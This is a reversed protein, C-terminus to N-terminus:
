PAAITRSTWHSGQRHTKCLVPGQFLSLSHTHSYEGNAIVPIRLANAVTGVLACQEATVPERPRQQTLRAHVGLAAAGANQILRALALTEEATPLLRIKCSVPQAMLM